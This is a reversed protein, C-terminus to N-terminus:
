SRRKAALTLIARPDEPDRLAGEEYNVEVIEYGCSGLIERLSHVDFYYLHEGPRYHKWAHIGGKVSELNPTSLFLWKPSLHSILGAPNHVHEISDWMTVIDFPEFGLELTKSFGTFDNIDYGETKYGNPSSLHFAGSACGYDLLRLHGPAHRMVLDWRSQYIRKGLETKSRELFKNHYAADYIKTSM